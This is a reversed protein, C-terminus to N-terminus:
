MKAPPNPQCKAPVTCSTLNWVLNPVKYAMADTSSCAFIIISDRAKNVRFCVYTPCGLIRVVDRGFMLRERDGCFSLNLNKEWESIDSKDSDKSAEKKDSTGSEDKSTDTIDPTGSEDKSTDAKDSTGSKEKSSKSGTKVTVGPASSIDTDSEKDSASPVDSISTEDKIFPEEAQKKIKTKSSKKSNNKKANM